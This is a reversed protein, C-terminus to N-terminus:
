GEDVALAEHRRGQLAGHVGVHDRPDQHLPHLHHGAAGRGLIPRVGDGAHDVEDEVLLEFAHPGVGGVSSRGMAVVPGEGAAERDAPADEVVAEM